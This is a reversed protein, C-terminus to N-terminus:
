RFYSLLNELLFPLILRVVADNLFCFFGMLTFEFWFAKVVAKVLSPKTKKKCENQWARFVHLYLNIKIEM